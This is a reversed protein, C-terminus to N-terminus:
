QGLGRAGQQYLNKINQQTSPSGMGIAPAAVPADEVAHFGKGMLDAINKIGRAVGGAKPNFLLNDAIQDFPIVKNALSFVKGGPIVHSILDFLGHGGIQSQLVPPLQSKIANKITGGKAVPTQLADVSKTYNDVGDKGLLKSFEGQGFKKDFLGPLKGLFQTDVLPSAGTPSAKVGARVKDRMFSLKDILDQTMNYTIPSQVQTVPPKGAAKAAAQQRKLDLADDAKQRSLETKLGQVTEDLTDFKINPDASALPEGRMKRLKDMENIASTVFNANNVKDIIPAVQSQVFDRAGEPTSFKSLFEAWNNGFAARGSQNVVQNGPHTAARPVSEGGIDVAGPEVSKLGASTAEGADGLAGLMKGAGLTLLPGLIDGAVAGFHRAHLDKDLFGGIQAVPAGILPVASVVHNDAAGALDGAVNLASDVPHAFNTEDEVKHALDGYGKLFSGIMGGQERNAEKQAKIEEIPHMIIARAAEVLPHDPAVVGFDTATQILKTAQTSAGQWDGKNAMDVATHYMSLISNKQNAARNTEYQATQKGLNMIGEAGSTTYGRNFFGPGPDPGITSGTSGNNGASVQDFIDGGGSPQAAQQEFFTPSGSSPPPAPAPTQAPPTSGPQQSSQDPQIQDFIDM